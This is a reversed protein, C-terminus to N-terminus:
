GPFPEALRRDTAAEGDPDTFRYQVIGGPVKETEWWEMEGDTDGFEFVLLKAQFRGAPTDVREASPRGTRNVLRELMEPKM